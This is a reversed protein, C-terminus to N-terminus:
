EVSLELIRQIIMYDHPNKVYMLHIIKIYICIYLKDIKLQLIIEKCYQIPKQWVDVHILWLYVWTGERIKINKVFFILLVEIMYHFCLALGPQSPLKSSFLYVHIHIVTDRGQEDSVIVASNTLGSYVGICFLFNFFFGCRWRGMTPVVGDIRL